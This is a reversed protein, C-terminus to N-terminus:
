GHENSAGDDSGNSTGDGNDISSNDGTCNDNSASDCANYNSSGDGSKGDSNSDSNDDDNSNLSENDEDYKVDYHPDVPVVSSDDQPLYYSDESDDNNLPLVIGLDKGYCRKYKSPPPIIKMVVNYQGPVNVYIREIHWLDNPLGKFKGFKRPPIVCIARIERKAQHLLFNTLIFISQNHTTFAIIISVWNMCCLNITWLIANNTMM